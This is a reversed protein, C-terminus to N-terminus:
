KTKKIRTPHIVRGHVGVKILNEKLIKRINTRMIELSLICFLESKLVGKM